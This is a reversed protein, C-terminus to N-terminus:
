SLFTLELSKRTAYENVEDPLLRSVDTEHDAAIACGGEVTRKLVPIYGEDRGFNMAAEYIRQAQWLRESSALRGSCQEALDIIHQASIEIEVLRITLKHSVKCQTCPQVIELLNSRVQPDNTWGGAALTCDKSQETCDASTRNNRAVDRRRRKVSQAGAQTGRQKQIFEFRSPIRSTPAQLM